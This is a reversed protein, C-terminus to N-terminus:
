VLHFLLKLAAQAMIAKLHRLSAKVSKIGTAYEVHKSADIAAFLMDIVFERNRNEFGQRAGAFTIGAGYSRDPKARANLRRLSSLFAAVQLM